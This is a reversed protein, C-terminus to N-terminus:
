DALLKFIVTGVISVLVIITFYSGSKTNKDINKNRQLQIFSYILLTSLTIGSFAVLIKNTALYTTAMLILTTIAIPITLKQSATTKTLIKLPQIHNLM